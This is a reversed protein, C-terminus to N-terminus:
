KNIKYKLKGEIIEIDLPKEKSLKEKILLLLNAPLIQNKNTM